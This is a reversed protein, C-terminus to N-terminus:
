IATGVFIRKFVYSNALLCEAGNVVLNLPKKNMGTTEMPFEKIM